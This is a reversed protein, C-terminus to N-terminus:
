HRNWFQRHTLDLSWAKKGERNLWSWSGVSRQFIRLGILFVVTVILYGYRFDRFIWFAVSFQDIWDLFIRGIILLSVLVIVVFLMTLIMVIWALLGKIVKDHWYLFSWKLRM